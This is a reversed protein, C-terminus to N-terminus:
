KLNAYAETALKVFEDYNGHWDKVMANLSSIAEELTKGEKKCSFVWGAITFKDTQSLAGGAVGELLEEPIEVGEPIKVSDPIVVGKRMNEMM